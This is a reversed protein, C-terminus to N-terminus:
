KKILSKRGEKIRKKTLFNELGLLRTKANIESIRRM